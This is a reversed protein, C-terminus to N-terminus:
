SRRGSGPTSSSCSASRRARTPPGCRTPSASRGRSWNVMGWDPNLLARWMLGVVVPTLLMPLILIGRVLAAGRLRQDFFLALLTGILVQLAVGGFTFIATNRTAQWFEGSTFLERFNDLGVFTFDGSVQDYDSLAVYLSYVLPFVSFAVLYLVCPGLLLLVDRRGHTPAARRAPRAPIASTAM